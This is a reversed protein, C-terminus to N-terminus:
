EDTTPLDGRILGFVVADSRGDRRQRHSRLVAERVFGAREATRHSALNDVDADIEIRELGLSRIAWVALLRTARSASGRRRAEAAVWYGIRARLDVWDVANLGVSGLLDGGGEECILLHLGAGARRQRESEELWARAEPEGYDHPVRTYRPILPDQCAAVLAPVDDPRMTRLVVARDSLAPDPLDIEPM